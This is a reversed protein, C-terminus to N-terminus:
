FAAMQLWGKDGSLQAESLSVILLDADHARALPERGVVAVGPAQPLSGHGVRAWTAPTLRNSYSGTEKGRGSALNEAKARSEGRGGKSGFPGGM